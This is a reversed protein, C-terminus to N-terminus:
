VSLCEILEPMKVPKRVCSHVGKSLINQIEAETVSSATFIIIKSFNKFNEKKLEDIVDNGSFEPMALDLLVKDYDGALIEALGEKGNNCVEVDIGSLVFFDTLMSTIEINDDVVLVKM